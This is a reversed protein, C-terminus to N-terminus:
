RASVRPGSAVARRRGLGSDQRPRGIAGKICPQWKLPARVMESGSMHVSRAHLETKHAGYEVLTPIWQGLATRVARLGWRGPTGGVRGWYCGARTCQAWVVGPAVLAVALLRFLGKRYPLCCREWRAFGGLRHRSVDHCKFGGPAMLCRASSGSREASPSSTGTSACGPAGPGTCVSGRESRSASGCSCYAGCGSRSIWPAGGKGVAPRWAM